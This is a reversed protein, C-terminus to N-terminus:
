ERDSYLGAALYQLIAAPFSPSDIHYLVPLALGLLKRTRKPPLRLSETHELDIILGLKVPAASKARLLGMGRVEIIGSLKAPPSALIENDSVSLLTRDDAM